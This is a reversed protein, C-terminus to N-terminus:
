VVIHVHDHKLKVSVFGMLFVTLAFCSILFNQYQTEFKLSSRPKVIKRVSPGKAFLIEFSNTM